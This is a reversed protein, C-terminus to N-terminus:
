DPPRPSPPTPPPLPTARRLPPRLYMTASILLPTAGLAPPRGRRPVVGAEGTHFTWAVELRAVNARDIQTLPSHRSGGPDGGYSPWDSPPPALPGAALPLILACLALVRM